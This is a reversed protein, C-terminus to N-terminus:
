DSHYKKKAAEISQETTTDDAALKLDKIGLFIELSRMHFEKMSFGFRQRMSTEFGDPLREEHLVTKLTRVDGECVEYMLTANSAGFFKHLFDLSFTTNDRKSRSERLSLCKSLDAPTLYGDPHVDSVPGSALNLMDDVLDHAIETQDPVFRADHRILSADHEVVNHASLDSLHIWDRGYLNAVSGITDKVLSPSFNFSEVMAVGLKELKINKGDHPLIGHNAMANLYPCPSRADGPKPAQFDTWIGGHGNVGPKVVSGKKLQPTLINGLFLATDWLTHVAVFKALTVPGTYLLAKLLKPTLAIPAWGAVKLFLGLKSVILPAM